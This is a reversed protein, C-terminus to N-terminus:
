SNFLCSPQLHYPALILHTGMYFVFPISCIVPIPLYCNLSFLAFFCLTFNLSYAPRNSVLHKLSPSSSRAIGTLLVRRTTKQPTDTDIGRMRPTRASIARSLSLGRLRLLRLYLMLCSRNQTQFSHCFPLALPLTCSCM